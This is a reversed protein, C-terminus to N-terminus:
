SSHAKARIAEAHHRCGRSLPVIKMVTSSVYKLQYRSGLKAWMGIFGFCWTGRPAICTRRVREMDMYMHM